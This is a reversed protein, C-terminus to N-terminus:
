EKDIIAMPKNMGQTGNVANDLALLLDSVKIWHETFGSFWVYADRIDANHPYLNGNEYTFARMSMGMPKNNDDAGFPFYRMRLGRQVGNVLDGLYIAQDITMVGLKLKYRGCYNCEITSSEADVTFLGM